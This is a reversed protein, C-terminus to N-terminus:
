SRADALKQFHDETRGGKLVRPREWDAHTIRGGLSDRPAETLTKKRKGPLKVERGAPSPPSTVEQTSGMKM